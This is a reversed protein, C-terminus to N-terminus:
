DNLTNLISDIETILTDLQLRMNEREDADAVVGDLRVGAMGKELTAIKGALHAETKEHRAIAAKLRINEAETAAHKKLLTNLKSNLNDLAEM